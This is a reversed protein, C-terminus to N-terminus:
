PAAQGDLLLLKGLCETLGEVVIRRMENTPAVLGAECYTRWLVLLMERTCARFDDATPGPTV